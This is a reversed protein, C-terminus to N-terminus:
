PQSSLGYRGSLFSLWPHLWAPNELVVRDQTARVFPVLPKTPYAGEDMNVLVQRKVKEPVDAFRPTMAAITGDEQYTM